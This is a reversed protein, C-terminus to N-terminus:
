GIDTWPSWGSGPWSQWSTSVQGGARVALASFGGNTGEVVRPDVASSGGLSASGSWTSGVSSQWTTWVTGGADRVYASLAGNPAVAVEPRGVMAASGIQQLGSWTSGYQSQWATFLQGNDGRAYVSMANNFGIVVRPDGAIGGGLDTWDHWPSGVTPQWSTLLHGNTDRVFAAMTGDAALIADPDGTMSIANAVQVFGSWSNSNEASEWTTSLQGGSRVFVSVQGSDSLVARPSGSLAGGLREWPEWTAGPTAQRTTWLANDSGRAFASLAGNRRQIVDPTGVIKTATGGIMVSPEWTSGPSRQWSTYLYGDGHVSFTSMAGNDNAVTTSPRSGRAFAILRDYAGAAVYKGSIGALAASMQSRAQFAAAEDGADVAQIAAVASKAATAQAELTRFYPESETLFSPNNLQGRLTAPATRVSELEALLAAAPGSLEAHSRFAQEFALILPQVVPAVDATLPSNVSNEAYKRLAGAAPGGFEALSRSWSDQPDYASPNWDFDAVTFLSILSAEEEQMENALLGISSQALAPDRGVLPGLHQQNSAYDNVPYNDFILLPRGGFSNQAQSFDGATITRSIVDPGTWFFTVEPRTLAAYRTRYTTAGTGAYDRPVAILKSGPHTAIFHDYIYNTVFAHAAAAPSADSKFQQDAACTLAGDTDDWGISMTRIGIDWLQQYRAILADLDGQDGHCMAADHAVPAEPDIRYIFDVHNASARSVAAALANLQDAPYPQRWLAGATHPDGSVTYLFANMKHQGLFDLQHLLDAQSWPHGYFSEEGGRMSFSSFDRVRVGPVTGGVVLQRLTQAAYFTGAADVGSLVITPVGDRLGAVLVYGGAPLGSPGPVGLDALAQSAQPGGLFVSLGRGAKASSAVSLGAKRLVGTTANLAARDAAPGAVVTANAPLRFGSSFAAISQPKPSVPPIPVDAWAPGTAGAPTGVLALGFVLGLALRWTSPIVAM